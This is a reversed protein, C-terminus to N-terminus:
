EARRKWEDLVRFFGVLNEMIVRTEDSTVVENRRTGWFTRALELADRKPDDSDSM